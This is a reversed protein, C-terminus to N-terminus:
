AQLLRLIKDKQLSNLESAIPILNEIKRSKEHKKYLQVLLEYTTSIDTKISVAYELYRIAEEELGDEALVHAITDLGILTDTYNQDYITLTNLNAVGYELKLETNTKGSFNVIGERDLEVLTAYLKSFKEPLSLEDFPAERLIATPKPLMDFPIHIFALGNLPQKRTSNALRERDWFEEELKNQQSTQKKITMTVFLCLMIFSAFIPFKM